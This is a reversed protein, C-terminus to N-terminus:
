KRKKELKELREELETFKNCSVVTWKFVNYRDYTSAIGMMQYIIYLPFKVYFWFGRKWYDEERIM